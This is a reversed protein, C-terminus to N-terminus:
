IIGQNKIRKISYQRRWFTCFFAFVTFLSGHHPRIRLQQGSHLVAQVHCRQIGRHIQGHLHPVPGADPPHVWLEVARFIVCFM